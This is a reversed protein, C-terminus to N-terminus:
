LNLALSFRHSDGLDNDVVLFAYDVAFRRRSVGVGFTAGQSYYGAKFGGRLFFRRQYNGEVGLHVRADGDNPFVIDSTVLVGGRMAEVDRSYGAGVKAYRPLAFEESDFKMPRGVNGVVAALNVGEIQSVHYLGADVVIGSADIDDIREYVPKVTLGAALNPTIYRSYGVLFAVDYVSFTGLPVATPFEDRREIDDMYNGTFGLGITGWDTEHTLMAQELRVTHIYETHQLLVNTGLVPSMAAPNWYLASADQAVAIFAEGMAAARAGVGVRLFLAGASGPEGGRALAPTIVVAVLCAVAITRQWARM